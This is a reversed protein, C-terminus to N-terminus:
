AVRKKAVEARKEGVMAEPLFGVVSGSAPVSGVRKHQLENEM